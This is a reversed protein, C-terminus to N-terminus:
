LNIAFTYKKITEIGTLNSINDPLYDLKNGVEIPAIEKYKVSQEVIIRDPDEKFKHFLRTEYIYICNYDIRIFHQLLVYFSYENVRIKSIYESVGKDHVDDEFLKLEDYLLIPITKDSLMTYDIPHSNDVTVMRDQFSDLSSTSENASQSETHCKGKYGEIDLQYHNLASYIAANPKSSPIVSSFKGIFNNRFAWDIGPDISSVQVTNYILNHQGSGLLTKIDSTCKANASSDNTVHSNLKTEMDRWLQSPKLSFKDKVYQKYYPEQYFYRSNELVGFADITIMIISSSKSMTDSPRNIVTDSTKNVKTIIIKNNPYVIEPLLSVSLLQEYSNCVSTSAMRNEKIIEFKWGSIVKTYAM